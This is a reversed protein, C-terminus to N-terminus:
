KQEYNRFLWTWLPSLILSLAIVIVSMQYGFHNIAGVQLGAMAVLFSFEGLPALLAGVYLSYRWPRRLWIFILTNVFTNITFVTLLIFAVLMFNELLFNMDILLGISVFFLALFLTKFSQLDKKVWGLNHINAAIVGGVFAGLGLSM